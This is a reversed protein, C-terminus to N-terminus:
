SRLESLSSIVRHAIKRAAATTHDTELLVGRMNAYKAARMDELGDGVYSCQPTEVRLLKACQLLGNPHPKLPYYDERTLVVPARRLRRLCKAMADFNSRLCSSVIGHPASERHLSELLEEAGESWKSETLLLEDYRRNRDIQFQDIDRELGGCDQVFRALNHHVHRYYYWHGEYFQMHRFRGMAEKNAQKWQELNLVLTGDLDLLTAQEM